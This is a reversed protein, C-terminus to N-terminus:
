TTHTHTHTHKHTHTYGQALEEVVGDIREPEARRLPSTQPNTGALAAHAHLLDDRQREVEKRTRQAEDLQLVLADLRAHVNVHAGKELGANAKKHQGGEGGKKAGQLISPPIEFLGTISSSFISGEKKSGSGAVQAVANLMQTDNAWNQQAGDQESLSALAMLQLFFNDEAPSGEGGEVLAAGQGEGALGMSECARGLAEADDAGPEEVLASDIRQLLFEVARLRYHRRTPLRHRDDFSALGRTERAPTCMRACWICGYGFLLAGCEQNHHAVFGM